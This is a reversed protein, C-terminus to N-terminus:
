LRIVRIDNNKKFNKQFDFNNPINVKAGLKQLLTTHKRESKQIFIYNIYNYLFTFIFLFIFLIVFSINIYLFYVHASLFLYLVFCLLILIFFTYIYIICTFLKLYWCVWLKKKIFTLLLLYNHLFMIQYTSRQNL